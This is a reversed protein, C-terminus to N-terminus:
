DEVEIYKLSTYVRGGIDELMDDMEKLIRELESVCFKMDNVTMYDKNFTIKVKKRM